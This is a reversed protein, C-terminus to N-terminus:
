LSGNVTRVSVMQVLKDCGPHLSKIIRTKWSLLPVKDDKLIVGDGMAPFWSGERGWKPHQQNLYETQWHKWFSQFFQQVMQCQVLRNTSFDTLDPDPVAHSLPSYSFPWFHSLLIFEPDDSMACLPRSNLCEEIQCLFTTIEEFSLVNNGIVRKMLTKAEWFGGFTPPILHYLNGNLAIDLVCIM